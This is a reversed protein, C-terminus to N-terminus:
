TPSEQGQQHSEGQLCRDAKGLNLRRGKVVVEARVVVGKGDPIAPSLRVEILTQTQVVREVVRFGDSGEAM